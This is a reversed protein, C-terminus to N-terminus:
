VDTREVGDFELVFDEGFATAPTQFGPEVDEIRSAAEVAASATFAYTEPTRLRAEAREGSDEDVAEAWIRAEGTRRQEEDPGTFTAEVAAKLASQIVRSRTLPGLTEAVRALTSVTGGLGVYTEIDEAGTSHYATVVDGLPFLAASTEGAGFDITRKRSATPVKRLGGDERVFCGRGLGEVATKATGQSPSLITEFGVALHSVDPVRDAVYAALCDSPVVDFGVGPLLSVEAVRGEADRSEIGRFVDVEGTLDLYEVGHELCAEVAEHYTKSFPGACNLLADYGELEDEMEDVTFCHHTLNHEEAQSELKGADRGAIVPDLGRDVAEEVVLEGTFGYSGYVLLNM